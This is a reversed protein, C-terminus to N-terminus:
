GFQGKLSQRINKMFKNIALINQFKFIENSTDYKLLPILKNTHLRYFDFKDLLLYYDRLFVRSIVNMENFEFQILNIRNELLLNKAGKLIDFENGETDIKLVDICGIDNEVCFADLNTTIIKFSAFNKYKHIDTIVEKYISAHSSGLDNKNTYFNLYSESSGLGINFCHVNLLKVKSQLVRYSIPNPEFAYINADPFELSLELSYDGTNAGIDFFIPQRQDVYKKLITHLFFKEGSLYYNEYNLIGMQHYAIEQINIKGIKSISLIFFKLINKISEKIKINIKM